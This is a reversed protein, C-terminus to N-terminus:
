RCELKRRGRIIYNGDEIRSFYDYEVIGWISAKNVQEENAILVNDKEIYKVNHAELIRKLRDM